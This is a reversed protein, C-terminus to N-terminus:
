PRGGTVQDRIPLVVTFASGRGIKSEVTVTGRHGEVITRAIYLGLGLGSIHTASIAREFRDFIRGIKDEDIGLGEDKVSLVAANNEDRGLQVHIAGGNGYKIANTLLNTVVQEMRFRDWLGSIEKEITMEIRSKAMSAVEAYRESIEQVLDSLNVRELNYGLKGAEIRSVDLLDDILSTLRDIQRSSVTFIRELREASPIKGLGADTARQGMQIQMKLASVPTKLEHSAISLFLDRSRVADQMKKMMLSTLRNGKAQNVSRDLESQNVRLWSKVTALLIGETFPAALFADAPYESLRHSEAAPISVLIIPIRQYMQFAKVKRCLEVAELKLEEFDVVILSPHSKVQVFGSRSGPAFILESGLSRLAGRFFEERAAPAGVFLISSSRIM